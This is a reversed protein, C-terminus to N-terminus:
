CTKPLIAGPFYCSVHELGTDSRQASIASVRFFLSLCPMTPVTCHLSLWLFASNAPLSTSPIFHGCHMNLSSLCVVPLPLLLAYSPYWSERRIHLILVDTNGLCTRAQGLSTQAGIAGLQWSLSVTVMSHSSKLLAVILSRM